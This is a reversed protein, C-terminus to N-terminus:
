ILLMAADAITVSNEDEFKMIKISGAISRMSRDRIRSGQTVAM